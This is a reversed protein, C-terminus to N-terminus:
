GIRKLSFATFLAVFALLVYFGWSTLLARAGNPADSERPKDGRRRRLMLVGLGGAALMFLNVAETQWGGGLLWRVSSNYNMLYEFIVSLANNAFHVFVAIWISDLRLALYAMLLGLLFANPIQIATAHMLSFLIATIVIASRRGFPSLEMLSVGRYAYEELLAPLIMVQVTISIINMLGPHAMSPLSAPALGALRLLELYVRTIYDSVTGMGLVLFFAALFASPSLRGRSFARRVPLQRTRAYLGYVVGFSLIYPLIMFLSYPFRSYLDYILGSLREMDTFLNPDFSGSAICYSFVMLSQMVGVLLQFSVFQILTLLSLRTVSKRFAADPSIEFTQM